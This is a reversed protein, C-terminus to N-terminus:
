GLGGLDCPQRCSRGRLRDLDAAVFEVDGPLGDYTTGVEHQDGPVDETTITFEAGDVLEVPGSAFTGVRIKPGQLDVLVAVGRGARDSARRVRLYVQEHDAYEGHSLNLRAVDMGAAVLAEIQAESSVAPGLTCVIKARRM